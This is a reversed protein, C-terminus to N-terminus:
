GGRSQRCIESNAPLPSPVRPKGDDDNDDDEDDNDGDDDDDTDDGDDFSPPSPQRPTVMMMMRIGSTVAKNYTRQVIEPKIKFNYSEKLIRGKKRPSGSGRLLPPAPPLGRLVSAGALGQIKPDEVLDVDGAM